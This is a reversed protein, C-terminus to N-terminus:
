VTWSWPVQTNLCANKLFLLELFKGPPGTTLFRDKLAPPTPKIGPWPVLIWVTDWPQHSFTAQVLVKEFPNTFKKKGEWLLFLGPQWKGWLLLASRFYINGKVTPFSNRVLRLPPSSGKLLRQVGSASHLRHSPWALFLKMLMEFRHCPLHLQHQKQNLAEPLCIPLSCLGVEHGRFSHERYYVGVSKHLIYACTLCWQFFFGTFEM